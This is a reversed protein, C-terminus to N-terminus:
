LSELSESSLQADRESALAAGVAETFKTFDGFSDKPNHEESALVLLVCDPSHNFQETWVLRDVLVGVDPRAISIVERRGRTDDLLVDCSGRVCVLLEQLRLHGHQGRRVGEPVDRIVMVRRPVFPLTGTVTAFMLSGRDQVVDDLPIVWDTEPQSAGGDVPPHTVHRM